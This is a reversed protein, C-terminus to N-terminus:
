SYINVVSNIGENTLQRQVENGEIMVAVVVKDVNMNKLETPSKISVGNLTGGQLHTDNDVLCQVHAEINETQLAKLVRRAGGSAGFIAINEGDKITSSVKDQVMKDISNDITNM